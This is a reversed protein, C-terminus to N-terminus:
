IVIVRATGQNTAIRIHCGVQDLHSRRRHRLRCCVVHHCPFGLLNMSRRVSRNRESNWSQLYCFLRFLSPLCIFSQVLELIYPKCRCHNYRNRALHNSHLEVTHSCSELQPSVTVDISGFAGTLNLISSSNSYPLKAMGSPLDFDMTLAICRSCACHASSSRRFIPPKFGVVM